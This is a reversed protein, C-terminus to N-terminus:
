QQKNNNNTILKHDDTAPSERGTEFCGVSTNKKKRLLKAINVPFCRYQLRKKTFTSAQPSCSKNHISELVPEQTYQLINLFM